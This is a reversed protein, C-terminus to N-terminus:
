GAYAAQLLVPSALLAAWFPSRPMALAGALGIVLAYWGAIRLLLLDHSAAAYLILQGLLALLASFMLLWFLITRNKDRLVANFYKDRILGTLASRYLVLGTVTHGVALLIFLYGIYAVM